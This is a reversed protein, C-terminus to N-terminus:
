EVFLIGMYISIFGYCMHIAATGTIETISGHQQDLQSQINQSKIQVEEKVKGVLSNRLSTEKEDIEKILNDKRRDWNENFLETIDKNPNEYESLKVELEKVKSKYELLQSKLEKYKEEGRKQNKVVDFFEKSSFGDTAICM